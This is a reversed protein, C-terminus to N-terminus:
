KMPYGIDLRQFAINLIIIAEKSLLGFHLIGSKLRINFNAPVFRLAKSVDDTKVASSIM